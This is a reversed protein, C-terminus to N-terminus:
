MYSPDEPLETKGSHKTYEMKKEIGFILVMCCACVAIEVISVILIGVSGSNGTKWLSIFLGIMTLVFSVATVASTQLLAGSTSKYEGITLEQKGTMYYILTKLLWLLLLLNLVEPLYVYWKLNSELPRSVVILYFVAAIMFLVSYSVKLYLNQKKMLKRQYYDGMYMRAIKKTGSSDIQVTEVYSEFYKHYSRSHYGHELLTDKMSENKKRKRRKM